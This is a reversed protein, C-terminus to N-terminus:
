DPDDVMTTYSDLSIDGYGQIKAMLRLVEAVDQPIDGSIVAEALEPLMTLHASSMATGAENRIPYTITVQM